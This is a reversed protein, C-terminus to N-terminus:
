LYLERAKQLDSLKLELNLIEENIEEAYAIEYSRTRDHRLKNNNKTSYFTIGCYKQEDLAEYKIVHERHNFEDYSCMVHTKNRYDGNKIAEKTNM